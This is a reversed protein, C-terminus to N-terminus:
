ITPVGIVAGTQNNSNRFLRPIICGIVGFYLGFGDASAFSIQTPQQGIAVDVVDPTMQVLAFADDPMFDAVKAVIPRGGYELEKLRTLISTDNYADKYDLNVRIGYSTGFYLNYPGYFGRTQLYGAAANVDVIMSAGTKTADNWDKGDSAAIRGVYPSDFLGYSHGTDVDMGAGNIAADEFSENVALASQFFQSTDLPQGGRRAARITRINFSFADITAYVPYRDLGRQQVSRESKVGPLMTRIPRGSRGRRERDLYMVSLWDTLPTTCGAAIIDAVFTLRKTGVETVRSDLIRQINDPLAGAARMERVPDDAETFRMLGNYAGQAIPDGFEEQSIDLRFV